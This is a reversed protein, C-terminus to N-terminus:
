LPWRRGWLCERVVAPLVLDATRVYVWVRINDARSLWRRVNESQQKRGHQQHQWLLVKWLLPFCVCVNETMNVHLKEEESKMGWVRRKLWNAATHVGKGRGGGGCWFQASAYSSVTINWCTNNQRSANIISESSWGWIVTSTSPAYFVWSSSVRAQIHSPKKKWTCM